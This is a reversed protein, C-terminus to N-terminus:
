VQSKLQKTTYHQSSFNPPYFSQQYSKSKKRLTQELM